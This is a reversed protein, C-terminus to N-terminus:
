LTTLEEVGIRRRRKVFHRVYYGWGRTLGYPAFFCPLAQHERGVRRSVSQQDDPNTM